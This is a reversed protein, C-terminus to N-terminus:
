EDGVMTEDGTVPKRRTKLFEVVAPLCSVIIIGLIVFLFHEQVAPINGFFFGGILFVSTWALAGLVNYVAFVRYQMSGIGAVFPAFTRIIPMFRAIVITKAGYQEYFKETRELHRRHLWRHNERFVRPGMWQGIAYNSADGFVAAVFILAFLVGLHLAGAAAFAGAAFLLSDGPLFPTVVLGTECFVIIFLLFYTWTGYQEIVSGLTADLHLILTIVQQIFEM